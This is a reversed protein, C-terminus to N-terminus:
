QNRGTRERLFLVALRPVVLRGTYILKINVIWNNIGIVPGLPGYTYIYTNIYTHLTHLTHIYLPHAM